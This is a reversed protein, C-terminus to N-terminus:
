CGRAASVAHWLAAITTLPGAAIIFFPLWWEPVTIARRGSLLMVLGAFVLFSQAVLVAIGVPLAAFVDWSWDRCVSYLLLAIGLGFSAYHLVLASSVAPFGPRTTGPRAYHLPTKAAGMGPM